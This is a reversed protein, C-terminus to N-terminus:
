ERLAALHRLTSNIARVTDDIDADFISHEDGRVNIVTIPEEFHRSWARINEAKLHAPITSDKEPNVFFCRANVKGRPRYAARAVHLGRMCNLYYLVERIALRRFDPIAELWDRPIKSLVETPHQEAYKLVRDWVEEISVAGELVADREDDMLQSGFRKEGGVSIAAVNDWERPAISNFFLLRDVELGETQMLLAIETIIQAGICWAALNYAGDHQVRKIRALYDVAVSEISEHVPACSKMRDYRIAYVTFDEDLTDSPDKFMNVYGGISGSGGHVFFVTRDAKAGRRLLVVGERAKEQQREVLSAQERVTRFRYIEGVALEINFADEIALALSTAKLSDGGVEFFDDEAGITRDGLTEQWLERLRIAAGTLCQGVRPPSMAGCELRLLAQRDVKGSPTLPMRELFAFESPIMWSPLLDRLSRRLAQADTDGAPRVYAAIRGKRMLVAAQTVAPNKELVREIEELEVRFGRVKVQNDERGLFEINGDAMWRGYDGTRYLTENRAFPSAIFRERTLAENSVYGRALGAGGIYIEGRIGRPVLQRHRDLIYFVTHDMPKGIPVCEGVGVEICASAYSTETPGYQNAIKVTNGLLRKARKVQEGSLVEGACFIYRLRALKEPEREMFDLFATLMSPVFNVVTVGFAAMYRVLVDPEREAGQAPIVLRCGCILPLFIETISVDFMPSTKLIFVDDKEINYDRKMCLLRTLLSRHPVAVGKPSGTSGSTYMIYAPDESGYLCPLNDGPGLCPEEDVTSIYISQVGSPASRGRRQTLLFKVNSDALIYAVRQEPYEPDIPVYSGGAKLVALIGVIMEISREVMIAVPVGPGVGEQRLRRALQNAKRNIDTYRMQVVDSVVALGLPTRAVQEEFLESLTKSTPCACGRGPNLGHVLERKEDESILELESFSKQPHAMGDALLVRINALVRCVCERNILGLRYDAEIALRGRADRDGISLLLTNTEYGNFLWDAEYDLTEGAKEFSAAQFSVALDYPLEATNNQARFVEVTKESPFRSHRLMKGIQRHIAHVNGVFSDHASIRLQLPLMSVFMGVTHRENPTRNLIPTGITVNDRGSIRALYMGIVAIFLSFVSFGNESCFDFVDQTTDETFSIKERAAQLTNDSAHVGFINKIYEVETGEALEEEWYARDRLFNASALYEQERAIFDLYSPRPGVGTSSLLRRCAEELQMGLLVLGWGDVVIHSVKLYGGYRDGYNIISFDYLKKHFGFLTQRGIEALSEGIEKRSSQSLDIRAIPEYRYPEIYQKPHLTSGALRIRLADNMEILKNLTRDLIQPDIMRTITLTASINFIESKGHFRISNYISQQPPTLDYLRAAIEKMERGGTSPHDASPSGNASWAGPVRDFGCKHAHYIFCAAGRTSAAEIPRARSRSRWLAVVLSNVHLLRKLNLIRAEM